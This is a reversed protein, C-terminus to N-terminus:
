NNLFFPEKLLSNDFKKSNLDIEKEFYEKVIKENFENKRSYRVEKGINQVVPKIKFISNDKIREAISHFASKITSMTYEFPNTKINSMAHYLMPGSDLGKSLLHITTGVLHPNSDFLAWFNCDTGRYYPSVGAHINIAKEKVLFDVLEGKIYSSGFVVYVDSKLFDSLLHMSCQNLDGFAMPLIKINKKLNNVYSNGFFKSQASNVNDFYKKVIPSAQYHGPIIGPFITSCEQIVFLEESAESLLNILYNHRNKNSTLLTIKM